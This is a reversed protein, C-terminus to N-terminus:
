AVFTPRLLFCFNKQMECMPTFAYNYRFAVITTVVVVIITVIYDSRPLQLAIM